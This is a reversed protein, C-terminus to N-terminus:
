WMFLSNTFGYWISAIITIILTYAGRALVLTKHKEGRPSQSRYVYLACVLLLRLCIICTYEYIITSYTHYVNLYLCATYVSCMYGCACLIGHGIKRWSWTGTQASSNCVAITLALNYRHIVKSCQIIKKRKGNGHLLCSLLDCNILRKEDIWISTTALADSSQECAEGSAEADVECM